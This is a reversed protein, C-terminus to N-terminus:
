PFCHKTCTKFNCHKKASIELCLNLIAIQPVRWMAINCRTFVEKRNVVKAKSVCKRGGPPKSFIAVYSVGPKLSFTLGINCRM